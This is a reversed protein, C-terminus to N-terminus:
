EKGGSSQLLAVMAPDDNLLATRLPTVEFDDGANVLAGRLLLLRAVELSRTMAAWHLATEGEHNKHNVDAGKELFLKVVEGKGSLVAWLLPTNGDDDECDVEGGGAVLKQCAGLDCNGMVEQFLLEDQRQPSLNAGVSVPKPRDNSM